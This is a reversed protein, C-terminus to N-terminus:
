INIKLNKKVFIASKLMKMRDIHIIFPAIDSKQYRNFETTKTDEASMNVNCFNNNEFPM